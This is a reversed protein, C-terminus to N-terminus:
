KNKGTRFRVALMTIDDSQEAEGAHKSLDERVTQLIDQLKASKDVSNLCNSLKEEGYQNNKIDMAETVGDTYLYLIDGDDLQIEQQTFDMEDMLGLVCNQDVQMYEFKDTAKHYVMPPNHGGNVYVFKGTNLDLMGMFVTVFMMEDNSQCLQDNSLKMVAAFDDPNTMMTSFNKLVTKSRSMFLAAPVGKGSVDAITIALHKDDLLYFDYFDGGVSKAAHMTAYIEFDNRGFNFDHPLMSQQINTAVNLETTVREKEATVKTLDAMYNKLEDAMENFCTALHEFENGTNIEIKKDLNGSAIEHVGDVLINMQKVSIDAVKRGVMSAVLMIIVFAALLAFVMFKISSNLADVFGATTEEIAKRNQEASIVVESEEIAMGFSWDTKEIPAYVVYHNVGDIKVLAIGTERNVMKHATEALTPEANDFLSPDNELNYDNNVSLSGEESPSFLIKANKDLVFAFGTDGMKTTKVLESIETLFRGEGVVGAIDGNRNFYPASCAIGLGRGRADLFVDSITLKREAVAKVHWPRSSYDNPLPNNNEDVRRASDKDVVVNFGNISAVYNAALTTDEDFLRVQFDQLNAVLGVERAVAARNTTSRYQLQATIKGNDARDPEAVQRLPYLEPHQMIQTMQTSMVTVDFIMKNVVTYYIIKARDQVVNRLTALSVEKLAESSEEAATEGIDNGIRLANSRINLMGYLSLGGAILLIVICSAVVLFLVQKRISWNEIDFNFM